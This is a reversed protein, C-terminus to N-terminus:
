NKIFFRIIDCLAYMVQGIIVKNVDSQTNKRVNASSTKEVQLLSTRAALFYSLKVDPKVKLQERKPRYTSQIQDKKSKLRESWQPSDYM